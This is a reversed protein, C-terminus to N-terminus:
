NQFFFFGDGITNFRKAVVTIDFKILCRAIKNYLSKVYPIVCIKDLDCIKKQIGFGNFKRTSNNIESRIFTIPYNNEMLIKVLLNFNEQHFQSDALELIKHTLINVTNKKYKIPLCSDFHLYRGSWINKHFWDFSLKGNKCRIIKLDLFPLQNDIELEYTFQLKPHYDNFIQTIDEIKNHPVTLLIDDVYRFYFPIRYLPKNLASEELLEMVLDALVPSMPSGMPSGEIQLFMDGNFTFFNNELVLKIGELFTELPISTHRSIDRWKEKIAKYVLM